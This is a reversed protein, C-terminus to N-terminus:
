MYVHVHMCTVLSQNSTNLLARLAGTESVKPELGNRLQGTGGPRVADRCFPVAENMCGCLLGNPPLSRVTGTSCM